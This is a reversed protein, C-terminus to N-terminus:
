LVKGIRLDPLAIYGNATVNNGSNVEKELSSVIGFDGTPMPNLFHVNSDTYMENSKLQHLNEVTDSSGDSLEIGIISKPKDPCGLLFIKLIMKLKLNFSVEQVHKEM